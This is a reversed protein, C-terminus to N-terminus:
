FSLLVTQARESGQLFITCFLNVIAIHGVLLVCKFTKDACVSGSSSYQAENIM